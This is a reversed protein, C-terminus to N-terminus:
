DPYFAYTIERSYELADQVMGEDFVTEDVAEVNVDALASLEVERQIRAWEERKVGGEGYGEQASALEWQAAEKWKAVASNRRIVAPLTENWYKDDGMVEMYEAVSGIEGIGLAEIDICEDSDAFEDIDSAKICGDSEDIGSEQILNSFQEHQSRMTSVAQVVEDDSASFGAKIAADYMAYEKVIGGIAVIDAGYKEQVRAIEELWPKFDPYATDLHDIQREMDDRNETFREKADAIEGYTVPHGNVRLAVDPDDGVCGVSLWATVFVLAIAALCSGTRRLARLM